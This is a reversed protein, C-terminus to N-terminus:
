RSKVEPTFTSKKDKRQKIISEAKAHREKEKIIAHHQSAIIKDLANLEGQARKVEVRKVKLKDNVERMKEKEEGM